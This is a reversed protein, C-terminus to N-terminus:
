DADMGAYATPTDTSKCLTPALQRYLEPHQTKLDDLTANTVLVHGSKDVASYRVGQPTSIASIDHTRSVLRVIVKGNNAGAPLAATNTAIALRAILALGFM